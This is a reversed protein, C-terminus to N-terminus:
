YLVDFWKVNTQLMFSQTSNEYICAEVNSVLRSVQICVVTCHDCFIVVKDNNAIKKQRSSAVAVDIFAIM